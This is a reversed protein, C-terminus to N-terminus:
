CITIGVELSYGSNGWSFRTVNYGEALKGGIPRDGKKPVSSAFSDYFAM